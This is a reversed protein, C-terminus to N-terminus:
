EEAAKRMARAAALWCDRVNPIDICLQEWSPSCRDKYIFDMTAAYALYGSKAIMLTKDDNTSIEASEARTLPSRRTLILRPIGNHDSGPEAPIMMAVSAIVCNDCIVSGSEGEVM